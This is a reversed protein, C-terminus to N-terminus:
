QAIWIVAIMETISTVIKHTAVGENPVCAATTNVAMLTPAKTLKRTSGQPNISLRVGM